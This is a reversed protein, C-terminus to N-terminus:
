QMGLLKLLENKESDEFTFHVKGVGKVIEAGTTPDKEILLKDASMQLSKNVNWFLVKSEPLALLEVKKEEIRYLIQDAVGVVADNQIKVNGCFTVCSPKNEKQELIAREALIIMKSRNFEIPYDKELATLEGKERDFHLRGECHISIEDGKTFHSTGTTEITAIEIARDRLLETIVVTGKTNFKGMEPDEVQATGFLTLINNKYDYQAIDAEAHAKSLLKMTPKFLTLMKEAANISVSESVIEGRKDKFLVKNEASLHIHKNLFDIDAKDCQIFADFPLEVRVSNKLTAFLFDPSFSNKKRVVHAHDAKLIGLPHELIVNGMLELIDDHYSVTDSSFHTVDSFLVSCPVLLLSWWKNM